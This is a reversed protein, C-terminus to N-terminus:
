RFPPRATRRESRAREARAAATTPRAKLEPKAVRNRAINLPKSEFLGRMYRPAQNLNPTKGAGSDPRPRAYNQPTEVFSDNTSFTDDRAVFVKKPRQPVGPRAFAPKNRMPQSLAPTPKKAQLSRVEQAKQAVQDQLLARRLKALRVREELSEIQTEAYSEQKKAEYEEKSPCAPFDCCFINMLLGYLLAAFPENFGTTLANHIIGLGTMNEQLQTIGDAIARLRALNETTQLPMVDRPYHPKPSHSFANFVGSARNLRRRKNDRPPTQPAAPM